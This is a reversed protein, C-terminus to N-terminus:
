IAKLLDIDLVLTAFHIAPSTQMYSHFLCLDRTALRLNLKPRFIEAQWKFGSVLHKNENRPLCVLSLCIRMREQRFQVDSSTNSVLIPKGCFAHMRFFSM